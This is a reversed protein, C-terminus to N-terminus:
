VKEHRKRIKDVGGGELAKQRMELLKNLKDEM